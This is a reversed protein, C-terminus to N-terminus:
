PFSEFFNYTLPFFSDQQRIVFVGELSTYHLKYILEMAGLVFSIDFAYGRMRKTTVLNKKEEQMKIKLYVNLKLITKSICFIQLYLVFSGNIGYAIDKM